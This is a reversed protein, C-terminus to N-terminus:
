IIGWDVLTLASAKSMATGGRSLKQVVQVCMVEARTWSYAGTHQSLPGAKRCRWRHAGGKGEGEASKEQGTHAVCLGVAAGLWLLIQM